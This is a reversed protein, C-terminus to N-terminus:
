QQVQPNHPWERQKLIDNLGPCGPQCEGLPLILITRRRGRKKKLEISAATGRLVWFM